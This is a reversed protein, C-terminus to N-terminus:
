PIREEALRLTEEVVLTVEVQASSKEAIEVPTAQGRLLAVFDANEWPWEAYKGRVAFVLYRGPALGRISFRGDEAAATRHVAVNGQLVSQAVVVVLAEGGTKVQGSVSASGEALSIQLEGSSGDAVEIGGTVPQGNYTMSQAYWHTNPALVPEYAAPTVHEFLLSGDPQRKMSQNGRVWGAGVSDPEAVQLLVSADVRDQMADGVYVFRALVTAPRLKPLAIGNVDHTVVSVIASAMTPQFPFSQTVAYVGPPVGSIDFGGDRKLQGSISFWWIPRGNDMKIASIPFPSASWTHPDIEATGRLHFAPALALKLEIGGFEQGASLEVSAAADFAQGSPFYSPALHFEPTGPGESIAFRLSGNRPGKTFIRYRGPALGALRFEGRDNADASGVQRYIRKGREWEARIACVQTDPLPEGEADLVRGAISALPTARLELDRANGGPLLHLTKMEPGMFGPRELSLVYDGPVVNEFHFAGTDGTTSIYGSGEGRIPALRVLVQNLPLGTLSNYVAGDASAPDAPWGSCSLCLTAVLCLRGAAQIGLIASSLAHKM